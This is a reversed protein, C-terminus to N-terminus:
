TADKKAGGLARLVRLAKAAPLVSRLPGILWSNKEAIERFETTFVSKYIRIGIWDRRDLSL